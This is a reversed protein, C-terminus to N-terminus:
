ARSRVDAFRSRGSLVLLLPVLGNTAIALSQSTSNFIAIDLAAVGFWVGFVILITRLSREFLILRALIAALVALPGFGVFLAVGDIRVLSGDLAFYLGHSFIGWIAVIAYGMAALVMLGGALTLSTPRDHAM